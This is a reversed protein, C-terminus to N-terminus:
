METDFGKDFEGCGPWFWGLGYKRSSMRGTGSVERRAIRKMLSVVDHGLGDLIINGPVSWGELLRM